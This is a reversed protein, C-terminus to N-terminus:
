YPESKLSLEYGIINTGLHLLPTILLLVVLVEWRPLYLLSSLLISGVLFELQDLGPMSQGRKIDIRRKIFSGVIDGLLAGLSLLVAVEWGGPRGWVLSQFLGFIAGVFLGFSFGRITKGDGLIRRGDSLVKGGDVPPGGGLVVPTANALYAPLIFWIAQGLIQFPEVVMRM